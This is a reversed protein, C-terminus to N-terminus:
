DKEFHLFFIPNLEDCEVFLDSDSTSTKMELYLLASIRTQDRDIAREKLIGFCWDNKFNSSFKYDSISCRWLFSCGVEIAPSFFIALFTQHCTEAFYRSFSKSDNGLCISATMAAPAPLVFYQYTNM